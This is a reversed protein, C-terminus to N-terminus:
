PVYEYTEFASEYDVVFSASKFYEEGVHTGPNTM